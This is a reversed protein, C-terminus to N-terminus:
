RSRLVGPLEGMAEFAAAIRAAKPVARAVIQEDHFIRLVERAVAAGLPNGCYSHGHHFAREAGGVFADFVRMNTLTASMPLMGGTFGKALCMMDPSVGAADCAWMGGTRGYGTFVEDMVLLVDNRDCVDRAHRLYRADYMRMGAAGQVLPELVVAAISNKGEQVVHELAEFARAHGGDGSADTKGHPAVFICGILVGGFPRGFVEV